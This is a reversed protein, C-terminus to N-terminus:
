LELCGKGYGTGKKSGWVGGGRRAPNQKPPGEKEEGRLLAKGGEFTDPDTSRFERKKGVDGVV